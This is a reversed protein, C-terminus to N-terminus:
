RHQLEPHHQKSLGLVLTGGMYPVPVLAPANGWLGMLLKAPAVPYWALLLNSLCPPINPGDTLSLQPLSSCM